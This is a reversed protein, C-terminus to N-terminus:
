QCGRAPSYIWCWTSTDQHQWSIHQKESTRHARRGRKVVWTSWCHFLEPLPASRAASTGVCLHTICSHDRYAEPRPLCSLKSAGESSAWPFGQQEWQLLKLINKFLERQEPGSLGSYRSSYEPSSCNSSQMMYYGFEEQGWSQVLFSYPEETRHDWQNDSRCM